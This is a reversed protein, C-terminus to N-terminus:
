MAQTHQMERKVFSHGSKCMVPLGGLARITRPLHHTSKVDFVVRAGPETPLIDKVFALLMKDADITQGDATMLIVRDGDGDFAIGLDHPKNAMVARLMRLNEPRTPD